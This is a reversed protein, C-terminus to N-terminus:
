TTYTMDIKECRHHGLGVADFFDEGDSEFLVLAVAAARDEVDLM